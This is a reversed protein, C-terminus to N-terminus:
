FCLASRLLAMNTVFHLQLKSGCMPTTVRSVNCEYLLAYNKIARSSYFMASRRLPRPTLPCDAGRRISAPGIINRVVLQSSSTLLAEVHVRQSPIHPRLATRLLSLPLSSALIMNIPSAGPRFPASRVRM